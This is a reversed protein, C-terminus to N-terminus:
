WGRVQSGTYMWASMDGNVLFLEALATLAEPHIRRAFSKVQVVCACLFRVIRRGCVQGPRSGVVVPHCLLSLACCAQLLM